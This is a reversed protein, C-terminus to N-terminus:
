KRLEHKSLQEFMEDVLDRAQEQIDEVSDLPDVDQTSSITVHYIDDFYKARQEGYLRIGKDLAIEFKNQEDRILPVYAYCEITQGNLSYKVGPETYRRYIHTLFEVREFKETAYKMFAYEYAILKLSVASGNIEKFLEIEDNEVFMVGSRCTVASGPCYKGLFNNIETETLIKSM